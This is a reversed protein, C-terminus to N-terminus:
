ARQRVRRPRVIWWVLVGLLLLPSLAVGAVAVAALLAVGIGLAAALLGLMVAVPVVLLVVLLALLVGLVALVGHGGDLSSLRWTEGDITISVGNNGFDALTSVLAVTSCATVVALVLLALLLWRWLGGGRPAGPAYAAPPLPAPGFAKIDHDGMAPESV